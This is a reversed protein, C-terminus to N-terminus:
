VGLKATKIDPLATMVPSRGYLEGAGKIWRFTIFPSHEFRGQALLAPEDDGEDLFALYAHGEGDQIVAEVVDHRRDEAEERRGFREPLRADAFRSRIAAATLATVRFSQRIQGNQDGDVFMEAAPVAAFRFASPDGVPAEQFLLTASGVTVLDLFCQHIEVAFNSRAFHGQLRMAADELFSALVARDQLETDHGPLFGFWRSWPPTLEALLSAALQGVADPATGDFLQENYRRAPGFEDGLGFGRQPVAYAYCERWLPEWPARRARARVYSKRIADLSLGQMRYARRSQKKGISFALL